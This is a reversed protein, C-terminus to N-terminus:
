APVPVGAPPLAIRVTTGEGRVSDIDIRGGLTQVAEKAIALGLGFGTRDADVLVESREVPTLEPDGPESVRKARDAAQGRGTAAPM